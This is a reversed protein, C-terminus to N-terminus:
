PPGAGKAAALHAAHNVLNRLLREAAPDSDLAQRIRLTNLIVAGRGLRHVSVHLGSAYATHRGGGSVRIGGALAEAPADLDVYAEQPIIERYVAYDMIGGCPLGDFLPHPKAWDDPRYYGGVESLAALRGKGVLPIVGPQPQLSGLVNPDLGPVNGINARKDLGAFFDPTLVIVTAGASAALALGTLVANGDAEALRGCALVVRDAAPARPDFRRAAVGRTNLWADLAEDAGARAIVPPLAPLDAPDFVRFEVEGGAAAAGREFTALFRYRGAPGAMAVDESFVLSAFPPEQRGGPITITVLRDLLRERGDAAIVQFRVPYRGPQLVGHNALVAELRAKQGRTVNLPEPFLCWRLPSSAELMVDAHDPKFERFLNLSGCGQYLDVLSNWMAHGVLHPNGLAENASTRRLKAVARHSEAFYDEPRPWCADLGWRKWDALFRTLLERCYAADDGHAFGLQELHRLMAPCDLAGCQSYETLIFPRGPVSRLARSLRATHPIPPYLHADRVRGDWTPSGPNCLDPISTCQDSRGSNLLVIRAADLQRLFPLEAVAHRFLRGELTENMWDWIVVSPHNRDRLVVEAISRSFEQEMGPWERLKWDLQWCGRHSQVVLLGLEDCLDLQPSTLTGFAVRCFNFGLAKMVILDRRPYDPDHPMVFAAPYEPVHMCGNLFVRRGNLRFAGDAFRFDRFGFRVTREDASRSRPAQARVTARYLQPDDLEWLRYAPVRCTTGHTSPGPPCVAQFRKEALSGTGNAPGLTLGLAVAAPRAAANHLTTEVRVEGTQWNPIARIDEVRVSPCALLEVAGVIGGANYSANPQVPHFKPSKATHYLTLGDIPQDTPNLVRVALRNRKGPRVADTADLTFPTEGGRHGGLCTGNLWVEALYDVAHFRLLTRGAPHPNRPARFDHWYWAVGHYGPFREQIVWPVRTPKAGPRPGRWWRQERGANDPDIAIRWDPGGLPTVETFREALRPAPRTAPKLRAAPPPIPVAFHRDALAVAEPSRAVPSATVMHLGPPLRAALDLTAAFGSARSLRLPALPAPAEQWAGLPLSSLRVDLTAIGRPVCACYEAGLAIRYRATQGVPVAELRAVHAFAHLADAEPIAPAPRGITRRRIKFDAVAGQFGKGLRLTGTQVSLDLGEPFVDVPVGNLFWGTTKPSFVAAVHYWREPDLPASRYGKGPWWLPYHENGPLPEFAQLRFLDAGMIKEFVALGVIRWVAGWEGPNERGALRAPKVRCEVTFTDGLAKADLPTELWSAGDFVVAPGYDSAVTRPTGTQTWRRARRGEQTGERDPYQLVLDQM